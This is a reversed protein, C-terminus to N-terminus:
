RKLVTDWVGGPLCPDNSPYGGCGEGSCQAAGLLLSLVVLLLKMTYM